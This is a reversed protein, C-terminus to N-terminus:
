TESGMSVNLETQLSTCSKMSLQSCYASFAKAASRDPSTSPSSSASNVSMAILGFASITNLGSSFPYGSQGSMSISEIFSGSKFSVM